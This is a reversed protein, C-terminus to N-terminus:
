LTPDVAQETPLQRKWTLLTLLAEIGAGAALAMYVSWKPIELLPSQQLWTRNMLEIAAWLLLISFSVTVPVVGQKALGPTAKVTVGTSGISRIRMAVRSM